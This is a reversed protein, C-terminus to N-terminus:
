SKFKIEDPLSVDQPMIKIVVGIIGLKKKAPSYGVRVHEIAPDGCKKLYGEAFRMSRAREGSLKGSINIEAGKAGSRMIRRLYNYAARRYHEGREIASALQFAMVDANLDPNEIQQVEIQPNELNFPPKELQETLDKIARGRKGIVIGPKQVFVTVRTGLPNRKIDMGAYGARKLSDGLFEDITLNSVSEEIFKREIAM